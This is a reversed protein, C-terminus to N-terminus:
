SPFCSSPRQILILKAYTAVHKGLLLQGCSMLMLLNSDDSIETPQKDSILVEKSNKSEATSSTKSDKSDKSDNSNQSRVTLDAEMTTM